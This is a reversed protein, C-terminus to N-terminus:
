DRLKKPIENSPTDICIKLLNNTDTEFLKRDNDTIFEYFNM